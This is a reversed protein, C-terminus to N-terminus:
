AYLCVRVTKFVVFTHANRDRQGAAEQWVNGDILKM